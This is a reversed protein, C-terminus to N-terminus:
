MINRPLQVVQNIMNFMGHLLVKSLQSILPIATGNIVHNHFFDSGIFFKYISGLKTNNNSAWVMRLKFLFYM